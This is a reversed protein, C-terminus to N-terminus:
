SRRVPATPHSVRGPGSCTAQPAAACTSPVRSATTSMQIEIIPPYYPMDAAIAQGGIIAAGAVTMTAIFKRM